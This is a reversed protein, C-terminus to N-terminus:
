ANNCADAAPINRSFQSHLRKRFCYTLVAVPTRLIGRLLERIITCSVIYSLAHATGTARIVVSQHLTVEVRQLTLENILMGIRRIVFQEGVNLIVNQKPVIGDSRMREVITKSWPLFAQSSRKPPPTVIKISLFLAGQMICCFARMKHALFTCLKRLIQANRACLNEICLFM